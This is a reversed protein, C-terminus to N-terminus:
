QTYFRNNYENELTNMLDINYMEALQKLVGEECLLSESLKGLSIYGDRYAQFCLEVYDTSLGRELLKKKRERYGKSLGTGLEPDIKDRRPIRIERVRRILREDVNTNSNLSNALVAPSVQLKIIMDILNQDSYDHLRQGIAQAMSAPILYEAAFANARIEVLDGRDWKNNSVIFDKDNDLISHSFEHSATFRQRFIDEVYNVLICRGAKPHRIFLGSIGSNDLARRFVHVGAKRFDRYIDSPVKDESLGIAKRFERAAKQGHGKFYEGQKIFQFDIHEHNPYLGYLQSETECLFLFEQISQRDEKSFSTGHVRYFTEMRELNLATESSILEKFDCVYFDALILVEDGSPELRGAEFAVIRDKDLGTGVSVDDVSLLLYKRQRELKEGLLILDTSM